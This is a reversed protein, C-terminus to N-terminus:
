AASAAPLRHPTTRSVAIFDRPAAHFAPLRLRPLADIALLPMIQVSPQIFRACRLAAHAPFFFAM